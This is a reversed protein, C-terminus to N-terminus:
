SRIDKIIKNRGGGSTGHTRHCVFFRRVFPSCEYVSRSLCAEDDCVEKRYETEKKKRKKEQNVLRVIESFAEKTLTKERSGHSM